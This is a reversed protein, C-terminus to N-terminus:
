VMQSGVEVEAEAEVVVEAEVQVLVLDQCPAFKTFEEALDAGWTVVHYWVVSYRRLLSVSCAHPITQGVVCAGGRHAEFTAHVIM